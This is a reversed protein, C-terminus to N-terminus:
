LGYLHNDKAVLFIVYALVFFLGCFVIILFTYMIRKLALWWFPPGEGRLERHELVGLIVGGITGILLGTLSIGLWYERTLSGNERAVCIVIFLAGSFGSVCVRAIGRPARLYLSQFIRALGMYQHPGIPESM